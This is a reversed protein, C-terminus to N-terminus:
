RSQRQLVRRRDYVATLSRGTHRATEAPPLRRAMRDEEHTWPRPHRPVRVGPNVIGLRERQHRVAEVSRGTREAVEIDPLTGLLAKEEATWWPGHYGHHLSRALNNKIANQRRLEVQEPPLPQGRVKAAGMASAALMLRM